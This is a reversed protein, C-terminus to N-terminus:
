LDCSFDKTEAPCRVHIARDELGCESMISVLRGWGYLKGMKTLSSISKIYTCVLTESSGM